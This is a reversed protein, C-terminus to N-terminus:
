LQAIVSLIPNNRATSLSSTQKIKVNVIGIFSSIVELGGIADQRYAHSAIAVDANARRTRRLFKGDVTADARLFHNDIRAPRVVNKGLVVLQSRKGFDLLVDLLM